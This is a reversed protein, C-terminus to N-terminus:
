PRSRAKGRKDIDEILKEIDAQDMGQERLRRFLTAASPQRRLYQESQQDLRGALGMLEDFALELEKGIARLLDEAPTRRDNEIDSLYSPTIERRRALERLSMGLEIRRDRIRRGLTTRPSM